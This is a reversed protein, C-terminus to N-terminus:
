GSKSSRRQSSTFWPPAQLARRLPTTVFDPAKWVYDAVEAKINPPLARIYEIAARVSFPKGTCQKFNSATDTWVVVDIKKKQAWQAISRATIEERYHHRTGDLFLYGINDLTTQERARLDCIVDAAHARKSMAYAVQCLEGAQQDIVLAIGDEQIEAIQSFEIKLKPGDNRWGKHFKDFQPEKDWLLSGWGLIAIKMM